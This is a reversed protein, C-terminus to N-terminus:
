QACYFGSSRDSVWYIGFDASSNTSTDVSLALRGRCYRVVEGGEYRRRSKFSWGATTPDVAFVAKGRSRGIVYVTNIKNVYRLEEKKSLPQLQSIEVMLQERTPKGSQDSNRITRSVGFVILALALVAIVITLARYFM